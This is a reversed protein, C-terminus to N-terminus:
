RVVERCESPRIQMASMQDSRMAKQLDNCIELKPSGIGLEHVAMQFPGTMVSCDPYHEGQEHKSTQHHHGHLRELPNVQHTRGTRPNQKASKANGNRSEDPQTNEHTARSTPNTEDPMSDAFISVWM